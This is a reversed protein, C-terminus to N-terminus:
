HLLEPRREPALRWATEFWATARDLTFEDAASVDLSVWEPGRGPSSTGTTHLAASAIELSLHFVLNTGEEVSFVIAGRVFERGGSTRRIEVGDLERALRDIAAMVSERAPRTGAGREESV